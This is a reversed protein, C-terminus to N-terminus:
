NADPRGPVWTVLNARCGKSRVLSVLGRALPVAAARAGRVKLDLVLGRPAGEHAWRAFVRDVGTIPDSTAPTAAQQACGDCLALSGRGCVRCSIGAALSAYRLVTRM